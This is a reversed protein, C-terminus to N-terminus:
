KKPGGRRSARKPNPDAPGKPWASLEALRAAFTRQITQREARRLTIARLAERVAGPPASPRSSTVGATEKRLLHAILAHVRHSDSM